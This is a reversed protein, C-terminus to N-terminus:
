RVRGCRPMRPDYAYGFAWRASDGAFVDCQLDATENIASMRLGDEGVRVVHLTTNAPREIMLKSVDSTYDGAEARYSEEAVLATRLFSGLRPDAGRGSRQVPVEIMDGDRTVVRMVPAPRRSVTTRSFAFGLAVVLGVGGVFLM